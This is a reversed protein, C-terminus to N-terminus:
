FGNVGDGDYESDDSNMDSNDTDSTCIGREYRECLEEFGYEKRRSAKLLGSEKRRSADLDWM